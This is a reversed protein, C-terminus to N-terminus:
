VVDKCMIYIIYHTNEFSTLQNRVAHATPMLDPIAEDQPNKRIQLPVRLTQLARLALPRQILGARAEDSVALGETFVVAAPARAKM